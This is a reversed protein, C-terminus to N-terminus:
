LRRGDSRGTARDRPYARTMQVRGAVHALGRTFDESRLTALRHLEDDEVFAGFRAPLIAGARDGLREVIEHQTRLFAESLAPRETVREVAAHLSAAAVVEIRHGGLTFSRLPQDVFGYVYFQTM